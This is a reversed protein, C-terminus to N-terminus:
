RLWGHEAAARIEPEGVMTEASELFRGASKEAMFDISHALISGNRQRLRTPLSRYLPVHGFVM